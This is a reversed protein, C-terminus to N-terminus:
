GYIINRFHMEIFPVFNGSLTCWVICSLSALYGVVPLRYSVNILVIIKMKSQIEQKEATTLYGGVSYNQVLAEIAYHLHESDLKGQVQQDVLHMSPKELAAPGGYPILLRM